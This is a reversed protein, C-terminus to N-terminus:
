ESALRGSRLEIRRTAREAVAPDHSAVVLTKGEAHLRVLLELVRRGSEPDLNSTPEDVLLLLPNAVLARAIAVRQREGGSLEEPFRDRQQLLDLSELLADARRGREEPPVGLPLLPYGVNDVVPLHPLLAFDQFVFGIERRVRALEKDSCDTLSRGLVRLRGSTARDQAGCLYLLTSKGSGSPGTLVVFEGTEITLTVDVLARTENPQGLHFVRALREADIM